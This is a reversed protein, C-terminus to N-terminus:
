FINDHILLNIIMFQLFCLFESFFFLSFLIALDNVNALFLFNVHMM